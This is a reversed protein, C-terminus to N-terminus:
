MTPSPTRAAGFAKPKNADLASKWNDRNNNSISPDEMEGFLRARTQNFVTIGSNVDGSPNLSKLFTKMDVPRTLRYAVFGLLSRQGAEKKMKELLTEESKEAETM